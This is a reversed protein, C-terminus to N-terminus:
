REDEIETLINAIHDIIRDEVRDVEAPTIYGYARLKAVDRGANNWITVLSSPIDYKSVGQKHLQDAIAPAMIRFDIELKKNM